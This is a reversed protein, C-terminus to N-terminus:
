EEKKISSTKNIMRNYFSQRLAMTKYWCELNRKRIERDINQKKWLELRELIPSKRIQKM